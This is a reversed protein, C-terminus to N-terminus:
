TRRQLRRAARGLRLAAMAAGFGSDINVVVVGAACTTLMGLLAAMGDFAAGYGTSTPVAVVPVEVLGGVVSALAGEMGAVVVVVDHDEIGPLAALLRHLGAVGVDDVRTVVAGAARAVEEAESAVPGDSTGATVVALRPAEPSPDVPRWVALRARESYRGGPNAALVATAPDAGLRTVMVPEGPGSLLVGVIATIEDVTKGQGMVVEPVGQRLARHTDVRAVGIDSFPLHRLRQVAEDPSVRGDRVDLLLGAIAEDDM